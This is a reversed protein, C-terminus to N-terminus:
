QAEEKAVVFHSRRLCNCEQQPHFAALGGQGSRVQDDKFRYERELAPM